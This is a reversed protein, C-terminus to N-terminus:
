NIGVGVSLKSNTYHTWIPSALFFGKLFNEGVRKAVERLVGRLIAVEKEEKRRLERRGRPDAPGYFDSWKTKSCHGMSPMMDHFLFTLFLRFRSRWWSVRTPRDRM